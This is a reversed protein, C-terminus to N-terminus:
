MYWIDQLVRVSSKHLRLINTFLPDSLITAFDGNVYSNVKKKITLTIVRQNKLDCRLWVCLEFIPRTVYDIFIFLVDDFCVECRSAEFYNMTTCQGRYIIVVNVLCWITIVFRTVLKESLPLFVIQNNSKVTIKLNNWSEISKFYLSRWTCNYFWNM